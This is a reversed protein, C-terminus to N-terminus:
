CSHVVYSPFDHYSKFMHYGCVEEQAIQVSAPYRLKQTVPLESGANWIVPQTQISIWELSSLLSPATPMKALFSQLHCPFSDQELTDVNVIVTIEANMQHM